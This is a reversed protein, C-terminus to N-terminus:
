FLKIKELKFSKQRNLSCESMNMQIERFVNIQNQHPSYYINVNGRDTDEWFTPGSFQLRAYITNMTKHFTEKGLLDYDQMTDKAILRAWEEENNELFFLAM